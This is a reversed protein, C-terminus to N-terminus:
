FNTLKRMLLLYMPGDLLYRLTANGGFHSANIHLLAFLNRHRAIVEALFAMMVWFTTRLALV